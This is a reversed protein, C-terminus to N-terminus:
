YCYSLLKGGLGKEKAENHTMIGKSTSIIIFGFDKAPLFRKEFKEFEKRTVSFRPKIVGTNNIKGLLNVEIIGGKNNDIIKFDGIYHNKKMIDLVSRIIKSNPKVICSKKAAREANLINNLANALPDNM